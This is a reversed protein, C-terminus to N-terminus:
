NRKEDKGHHAGKAQKQAAQLWDLAIQAYLAAGVYLADEDFRAKPHHLPKDYGKGSEGAALGLMVSPVCHSIYAFDESGGNRRQVDGGSLTSSLVAKEKVTKKAALFALASMRADNVLTPCGSTFTTKATARFAKAMAAPQKKLREKMFARTDEDFARLTGELVANDAIANAAVGGSMKGVTLVAPMAASIERASIEQLGLMCYAAATLADVGNQPASGHCAKGQIEIQFYDAAPASINEAIVTTGTALPMDTMVHLMVAARVTPKELVGKEIAMKAGELREEAAQFLLKVMGGIKTTHSKLLCAAGFLMAAHMDHGCAHMNGTKCAFTEGGKELIPLADMDARLLICAEGDGMSLTAVISGGVEQCDLGLGRLKELIYARTKPLDFGTEAHEHLNRRFAVLEKQLLKAKSLISDSM